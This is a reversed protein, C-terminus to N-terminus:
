TSLGPPAKPVEKIWIEAKMGASEIEMVELKLQNVIRDVRREVRSKGMVSDFQVFKNRVIVVSQVAVDNRAPFPVERM